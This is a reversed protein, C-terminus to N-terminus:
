PIHADLQCGTPIAISRFLSARIGSSGVSLSCVPCLHLDMHTDTFIYSSVPIRNEPNYRLLSYMFDFGLEDYKFHPLLEMICNSNFPSTSAETELNIVNTKILLCNQIEPWQMISPTGLLTFITKVQSLDNDGPVLPSGLLLEGFICGIALAMDTILVHCFVCLCFM